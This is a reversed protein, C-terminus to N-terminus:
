ITRRPGRRAAAVNRMSIEVRRRRALRLPEAAVVRIGKIPEENLTKELTKSQRATSGDRPRGAIILGGSRPCCPNGLLNGTSPKRDTRRAV